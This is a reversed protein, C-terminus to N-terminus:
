ISFWILILFYRNYLVKTKILTLGNDFFVVEKYILYYYAQIKLFFDLGYMINLFNIFIIVFYHEHYHPHPHDRM